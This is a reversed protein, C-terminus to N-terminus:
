PLCTSNINPNYYIRFTENINKLCYIKNDIVLNETYKDKLNVIILDPKIKKQDIFSTFKDNLRKVEFAPIILQQSHLPSSNLIFKLEESSFDISNNYTILKNAQYKMYFTKGINNNLFRWGKKENKIFNNFDSQNVGLFKFIGMLNNELTEDNLSTNIGIVFNLNTYNNLILNTQVDDDFTLISNKKNINFKKIESMLEHTDIKKVESLNKKSHSYNYFIYFFLLLTILTKFLYNLFQKNQLFTLLILFFYTLLVFFTLAILM